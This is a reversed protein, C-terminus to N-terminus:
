TLRRIEDLAAEPIVVAIGDPLHGVTPADAILRLLDLLENREDRLATVGAVVRVAQPGM